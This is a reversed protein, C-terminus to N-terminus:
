VEGRRPTGPGWVVGAGWAGDFCRKVEAAGAGVVVSAGAAVVAAAVVSDGAAVVAAAV